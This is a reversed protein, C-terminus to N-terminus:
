RMPPAYHLGGKNRLNNIGRPIGPPAINRGWVEGYNGVSKLSTWSLSHSVGLNGLIAMPSAISLSGGQVQGAAIGLGDLIARAQHKLAIPAATM